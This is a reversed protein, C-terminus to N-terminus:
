ANLITEISLIDSNNYKKRVLNQHVQNSIHRHPICIIFKEVSGKHLKKFNYVRSKMLYSFKKKIIDDFIIFKKYRKKKLFSIISRGIVGYGYIGIAQYNKLNDLFNSLIKSVKNLYFILNIPKSGKFFNNNIKLLGNKKILGSDHKLIKKINYNMCRLVFQNLCFLKRSVLYKKGSNSLKNIFNKEFNELFNIIKLYNFDNELKIQSSLGFPNKKHFLITVKIKEYNKMLCLAKTLFLLDEAYRLKEFFINNTLLFQRSYICQFCYNVSHKYSLLNLFFIKSRCKKNSYLNKIKLDSDKFNFFIIDKNKKKLSNILIKIGDNYIEDDSDIFLLYKGVASRIGKDRTKGVGLNHTNNLIKINSYNKQFKQCILLSNDTSCDNVLLIEYDNLNPIIILNKLLKELFESSNFIPVVISLYKKYFFKTKM